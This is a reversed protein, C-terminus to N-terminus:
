RSDRTRPSPTPKAVPTLIRTTEDSKPSPEAAKPWSPEPQKVAKPAEPQKPAPEQKDAKAAKEKGPHTKKYNKYSEFGYAATLGAVLGLVLAVAAYRVKGGIKVKGDAPMVVSDARIYTSEPAQLAQQRAALEKRALDLVSTAAKKASAPSAATAVVVIFPGNLQGNGAEYAAPAGDITEFQKQTAPDKLTEIVIQASTTLSGDFALLPNIKEAPKAEGVAVKAGSSPATLVITGTSEYQPSVSLFVAVALGLSVAFVPLAIYWRKLLVRITMWFDM